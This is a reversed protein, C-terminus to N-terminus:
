FAVVHRATCGEEPCDVTTIDRQVEGYDGILFWSDPHWRCRAWVEAGVEMPGFQERVSDLVNAAVCMPLDGLVISVVAAEPGDLCDRSVDDGSLNRVAAAIDWGASSIDYAHVLIRGDESYRFEILQRVIDQPDLTQAQNTLWDEMIRSSLSRNGTLIRVIRVVGKGLKFVSAVQDVLQLSDEVFDIRTLWREVNTDINVFLSYDFQPTTEERQESALFPEEGSHVADVRLLSELSCDPSVTVGLSTVMESTLVVPISLQVAPGPLPNGICDVHIETPPSIETRSAFSSVMRAIILFNGDYFGTETTWELVVGPAVDASWNRIQAKVPMAWFFAIGVVSWCLAKVSNLVRPYSKM